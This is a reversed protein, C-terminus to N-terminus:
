ADTSSAEAGEDVTNVAFPPRPIEVLPEGTEADTEISADAPPTGDADREEDAPPEDPGSAADAGSDDRPAQAGDAPKPANGGVSEPVFEDVEELAVSVQRSVGKVQMTIGYLSECAAMSGKNHTVVIFQTTKRFGDLMGLFRDVNADDLAADVEDLVCFPSPRAEFVAFLLALATMTRQGGSLLGISLLERGPPRAVIEIGAELVDLGEELQVDAKGGGFLQRFIRRFNDRVEEFTELFLRKSEKDIKEITEKLSKRSQALDNAQTELFELRGGVEELEEVAETNVPGLKDLQAKLANVKRELEALAAPEELLTGDPEFDERLRHENLELEEESRQLMEERALDLRQAELRGEGLKDAAGDLERQVAESGSRAEEINKAGEKEANRLTLVQADVGEKQETLRGALEDIERAEGEGQEASTEFEAVRTTTREIEARVERIRREQDEVRRELASQESTLRTVEVQARGEERSLTEREEESRRRGVELEELRRNEEEFESETLAKNEIATRLDAALQDIEGQAKTREHELQECAARRDSLRAEATALESRAAALARSREERAENLGRVRERLGDREGTERALRDELVSISEVCRGLESELEAASSRRGVAGQTVARRGAVLGAGDVCEGAPTVFRWDPHQAVLELARDLGDVVVVDGILVEVLAESGARVQILDVLRGEVGHTYSLREHLRRPSAPALAHPVVLGVQGEREESEAGSLWDAISRAAAPSEVVLALAREALVVDLARALRTDSQVHDAVLGVLSERSCPGTQSEVAELVRRTGADLSERERERDLLSEIKSSLRARELELRGLEERSGEVSQEVHALQARSTERETECHELEEQAATSAIGAREASERAEVIASEAGEIRELVRQFREHVPERSEELHRLRNQAATKEHLKGLVRENQEAVQRRTEKYDQNLVRTRKSLEQARERASGGEGNLRELDSRMTQLTTEDEDLGAALQQSRAREEEASSQWAAIRLALQSKREELARLEGSLRAAESSSRDLQVMVSAREREREGMEAELRTREERLRELDAELGEIRPRVEDLGRDIVFLKHQFFRRREGTWATRAELFREAKGAQIKLSRVRTRLEGMVDDLRTVDQEVRKLRLEAEHRRQRYRSVGAAEEFIARRQQPNASLVADIKGQELVSYGRSGLGTNFLMDKVDKLRVRQGDILYEGEGSKYLRRTIAVEPGRDEIVGSDNEFVLTVEAVSLPPRSASGKFIVDTMGSGRMSTPRTEGLAWRVSDVVNSKGCGNPGVIGTLSTTGFDLVTRDAFSKFGFLELRKLRM